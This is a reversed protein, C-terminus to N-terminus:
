LHQTDGETAASITNEAVGEASERLGFARLFNLWDTVRAEPTNPASEDSQYVDTLRPRRQGPRQIGFRQPCGSLRAEHDAAADEAFVFYADPFRDRMQRALRRRSRTDGPLAVFQGISSAERMRASLAEPGVLTLEADPRSERVLKLLPLLADAGAPDEPLRIFFRTKRPLADWGRAALDHALLNRKAELRLRRPPHVQNRWRDHSWLWCACLTDDQELKTELWRNLAITVDAARGTTTLPEFRLEVRWFATRRPYIAIVDARYKEALLGALESTSAVRGFFTTLAGTDRSNQDFLVGVVGRRRLIKLSEQFGDKRSLLRMGFRERTRKVFENVAPNRLPRFIVGFEPLPVPSLLGLWTQAEWHALHPTCVLAPRPTRHWDEFIRTAAPHLRAIRRLRADSLYPSALSLLGTEVLRRCSARATAVQWDVPRDPFAHDLNSRSLRRRRSSGRYLAEGLAASFGRLLFEPTWAITRGVLQLLLTLM